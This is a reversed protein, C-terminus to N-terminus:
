NREVWPDSKDAIGENTNATTTKEKITKSPVAKWCCKPFEVLSLTELLIM